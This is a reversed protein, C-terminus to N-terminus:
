LIKIKGDELIEIKDKHETLLKLAYDSGDNFRKAYKKLKYDPHIMLNEKRYRGISFTFEEGTLDYLIGAFGDKQIARVQYKKNIKVAHNKRNYETDIFTVWDGIEFCQDLNNDLPVPWVKGKLWFVVPIIFEKYVESFFGSINKAFSRPLDFIESSDSISEIVLGGVIVIIIACVIFSLIVGTIGFIWYSVESM